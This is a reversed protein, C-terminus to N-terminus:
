SDIDENSMIRRKNNLLKVLEHKTIEQAGLLIAAKRKTLSIDFHEYVEGQRQIWERSLGLQNAIELLEQHTDALLHCMIMGKFPAKMDDVYIM